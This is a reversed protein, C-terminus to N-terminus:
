GQQDALHLFEIRHPTGTLINADNVQDIFIMIEGNLPLNKNPVLYMKLVNTLYLWRNLSEQYIAPAIVCM